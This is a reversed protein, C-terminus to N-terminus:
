LNKEVIARWLSFSIVPQLYQDKSFYFLYKGDPSFLPAQVNKDSLEIDSGNYHIYYSKNSIYLYSGSNKNYSLIFRENNISTYENEKISLINYGGSIENICAGNDLQIEQKAQNQEDDKIEKNTNCGNLSIITIFMTMLVSFFRRKM